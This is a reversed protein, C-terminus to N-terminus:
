PAAEPSASTSASTSRAAGLAHARRGLHRRRRDRRDRARHGAVRRRIGRGHRPRRGARRRPAPRRALLQRAHDHRDRGRAGARDPRAPRGRGRRAHHAAAPRDRGAARGHGLRGEAALVALHNDKAMVADSLSYRHNHGGGNVCRMASSPACARRPRARTPSARAPTRRGRRRLAGTLTAIGSMRQVFNLGIREATLVGRAPGSVVALVAGAEFASATRSSWSRRRHAPRHAPVGGRVRRRRQVRGARARRPRRPRDATEPILYRARSTAGPRTRKSPPRSSATSRREHHADPSEARRGSRRRRHRPM